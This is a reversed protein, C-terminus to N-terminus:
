LRKYKLNVLCVCFTQKKPFLIEIQMESTFQAYLTYKRMKFALMQLYKHILTMVNDIYDTNIISITSSHKIM